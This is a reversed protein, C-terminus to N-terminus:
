IVISYGDIIFISYPVTNETNRNTTYMIIKRQHEFETKNM